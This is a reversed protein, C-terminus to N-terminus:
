MKALVSPDRRWRGCLPLLAIRDFATRDSLLSHLLVLDRGKGFQTVDLALKNATM